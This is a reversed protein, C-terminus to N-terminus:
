PRIFSHFNINKFQCCIINPSDPTLLSPWNDSRFCVIKEKPVVLNLSWSNSLLSVLGFYTEIFCIHMWMQKWCVFQTYLFFPACSISMCMIWLRGLKLWALSDNHCGSMSWISVNLLTDFIVLKASTPILDYCKHARMFKAFAQETNEDSFLFIMHVIVYFFETTRYYILCYFDFISLSISM